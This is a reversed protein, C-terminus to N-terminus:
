KAMATQHLKWASLDLQLLQELEAIDDEFYKYAFARDEATLKKKSGEVYMTNLIKKRIFKP